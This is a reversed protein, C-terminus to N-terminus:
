FEQNTKPPLEPCIALILSWVQHFKLSALRWIKFIISDALSQIYLIASQFTYEYCNDTAAYVPYFLVIFILFKSFKLM